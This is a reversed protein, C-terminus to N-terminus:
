SQTQVALQSLIQFGIQDDSSGDWELRIQTRETHDQEVSTLVLVFRQGTRTVSSIRIVGAQETVAATLGMQTLRQQVALSASQPSGALIRDRGSATSQLLLSFSETAACGALGWLLIICACVIRSTRAM